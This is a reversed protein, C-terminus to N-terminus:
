HALHIVQEPYSLKSKREGCKRKAYFSRSGCTYVDVVVQLVNVSQIYVSILDKCQFNQIHSESQSLCAFLCVREYTNVETSTNEEVLRIEKWKSVKM